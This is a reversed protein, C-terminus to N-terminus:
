ILIIQYDGSIKGTARRIITTFFGYKDELLFNAYVTNSFPEGDLFAPSIPAQAIAQLPTVFANDNAIRDIISRNFGLNM